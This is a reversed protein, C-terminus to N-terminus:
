RKLFMGSFFSVLWLLLAGTAAPVFGNVSFGDVFSAVFWFVVINVILTSLGFTVLTVPFTLIAFIPKIITNLVGILIAAILAIWFSSVKIGPVFYAIALLAIANLILRFIFM